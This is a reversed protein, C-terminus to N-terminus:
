FSFSICVNRSLVALSTSTAAVGADRLDLGLAAGMKLVYMSSLRRLSQLRLKLEQLKDRTEIHEDLLYNTAEQLSLVRPECRELDNQLERFNLFNM